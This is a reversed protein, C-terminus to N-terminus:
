NGTKKPPGPRDREGADAAVAQNLVEVIYDKLTMGRMAAAAKVRRHLDDPIEYHIRAV